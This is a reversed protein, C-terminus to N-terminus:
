DQNVLKGVATAAATRVANDDDELAISLPKRARQDGLEGLAVAAERRVGADKKYGLAAILGEVDGAAHLAAVDPRSGGFLGRLFSM